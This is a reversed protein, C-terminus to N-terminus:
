PIIIGQRSEAEQKEAINHDRSHYIIANAGVDFDRAFKITKDYNQRVKTFKYIAKILLGYKMSMLPGMHVFETYRIRWAPFGLHCRAPGYVLLLDPDPGKFGVAILAETLHSDTLIKEEQERNLGGLKLYEKFLLNAAKALGEKGDSFSVFEITMLQQDMQSENEDVDEFLKVNKLKDLISGRSIKLIGERDYLCVRRVGIDALWQLLQVVKSIQYADESEVVIALYHLKHINLTQYSKFIGASILYSELTDAVHLGFYWLSIIFHLCHWLLRLLGLNGIQDAAIIFVKLYFKPFHGVYNDWPADKAVIRCLKAAVSASALAIIRCSEPDVQVTDCGGKREQIYAAQM